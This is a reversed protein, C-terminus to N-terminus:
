ENPDGKRRATSFLRNEWQSRAKYFMERRIYVSRARKDRAFALMEHVAKPSVPKEIYKAVNLRGGNLAFGPSSATFAVPLEEDLERIRRVAEVGDPGDLYIDM